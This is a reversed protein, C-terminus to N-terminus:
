QSIIWNLCEELGETYDHQAVFQCHSKLAPSGNGVSCTTLEEESGMWDAESDGIMYIQAVKFKERLFLYGNRKSVGVPSAIAIGYKSNFDFPLLTAPLHLQKILEQGEVFWQNDIIALGSSDAQRLYFAISNTRMGDILMLKQNAPFKENNKIWTATDGIQIVCNTKRFIQVLEEIFATIGEANCLSFDQGMYRAIAGGEGITIQPTHKLSSQFNGNLRDIPTDSNPVLIIGLATATEITKSIDKNVQYTRDFIVGDQDIMILKM